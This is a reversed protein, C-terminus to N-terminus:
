TEDPAIYRHYPERARWLLCAMFGFLLLDVIALFWTLPFGMYGLQYTFILTVAMMFLVVAAALWAFASRSLFLAIFVTLPILVALGLAVYQHEIFYFRTDFYALVLGGTFAFLLPNRKPREIQM